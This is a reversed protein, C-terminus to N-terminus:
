CILKHLEKTEQLNLHEPILFLPTKIVASHHHFWTHARYISAASRRRNTQFLYRINITFRRILLSNSDNRVKAWNTGKLSVHIVHSLVPVPSLSFRSSRM